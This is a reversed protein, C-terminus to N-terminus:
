DTGRNKGQWPRYWARIAAMDAALDGTTHFLPGIGIVKDPYHFYAMLVPVGAGHAIKLFGSKWQKVPKRTGEPALAFWLRPSQLILEVSQEVVGQPKRRDLPIVGLRRLLISLPWWFLSDKGLIRADFGLAMKAAMGWIGDWNSSHPAAILVLKPIDPFAGTVRWGGLRLLSRGLWRSFRRQAPVQPMNPPISPLLPGTGAM